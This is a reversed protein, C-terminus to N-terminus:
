GEGSSFFEATLISGGESIACGRHDLFACAM